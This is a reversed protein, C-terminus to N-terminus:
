VDAARFVGHQVQEVATEPVLDQEIEPQNGRVFREVPKEVLPHDEGVGVFVRGTGLNGDILDFFPVSLEEFLTRAPFQPLDDGLHALRELVHDVRVIDDLLVSRVRQTEVFHEHPREVRDLGPVRLSDFAHIAEERAGVSGDDAFFVRDCVLIPREGFAEGLGHVLANELHRFRNFFQAEVRRNALEHNEVVLQRFAVLTIAFGRFDKRLEQLRERRVEGFFHPLLESM